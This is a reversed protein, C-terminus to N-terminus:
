CAFRAAPAGRTQMDLALICGAPFEGQLEHEPRGSRASTVFLTRGDPGGFCPMTPCQVPLAIRQLEEGAASLEVVAAGEYLCVWYHGNQDIAAGDPRGGYPLTDRGAFQKWVARHSVTGSAADLVFRDIRHAQTHAWYLWQGDSSFALGNATINGCAAERVAYRGPSTRELIWLSAAEATKPSFLSGAWFRGQADCRGDNLRFHRTDHPVHAALTLAGRTPDLFYFGDRLAVVYRGDDTPACCGPESPTPWCHHQGSAIHLRHVACGNIDCWVLSQTQDDWCPSEGLQNPPISLTHMSTYNKLLKIVQIQRILPNFGSPYRCRQRSRHLSAAVGQPSNCFAAATM